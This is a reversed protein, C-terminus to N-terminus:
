LCSSERARASKRETDRKSKEEEFGWGALAAGRSRGGARRRGGGSGGPLDPGPLLPAERPPRPSPSPARAEDWGAPFAPPPHKRGPGGGGARLAAAPGAPPQRSSPPLRADRGARGGLFSAPQPHRAPDPLWRSPGAPNRGEDAKSTCISFFFFNKKKKRLGGDFFYLGRIAVRAAVPCLSARRARAGRTGDAAGGEGSTRPQSDRRRAAAM